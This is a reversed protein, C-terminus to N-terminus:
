KQTNVVKQAKYYGCEPCVRHPLIRAQCQSCNVLNPTALKWGARRLRQRQKSHRRKPVGM